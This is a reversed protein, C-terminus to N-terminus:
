GHDPECGVGGGLAPAFNCREFRNCHGSHFVGQGKGIAARPSPHSGATAYGGPPHPNLRKARLAARHTHFRRLAQGGDLRYAGCDIM